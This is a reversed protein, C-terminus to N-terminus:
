CSVLRIPKYSLLNSRVGSLRSTPPELGSLGMRKEDVLPSFVEAAISHPPTAWNPSCRGQLCPTMLEFRVMEVRDIEYQDVFPRKSRGATFWSVFEYRSFQILSLNSRLCIIDNMHRFILDSVDFMLGRRQYIYFQYRILSVIHLDLFCYCALSFFM